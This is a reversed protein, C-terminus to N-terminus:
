DVFERRLRALAARVLREGGRAHEVTLGAIRGIEAFDHQQLWAGLARMQDGPLHRAAFELIELATQQDTVPPRLASDNADDESFASALTHFWRKNSGDDSPSSGGLQRTVYERVVNTVVIRLWDDITKGPNAALWHELLALARYDNRALKDLVNTTANRRHDESSRLPGMSHSSAVILEIQPHLATVLANWADAQGTLLARVLEIVVNDDTSERGM